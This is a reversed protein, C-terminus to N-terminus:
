VNADGTNADGDAADRDYAFREAQLRFMAAYEGAAAMLEAHTGSEVVQGGGLVVIRDAHRVTSLRHTVLVTTLGATLELFRDFLEAEARVDLNASPEDLVLVSAGTRAAYLARALAIRQWQGGSLDAGRRYGRSLVTDWGYPLRGIVAAAAASEAASLVPPDLARDYAVNDLASAEYRLFNQAIVAIQARWSEPDIERLDCGDVTISGATPDYLRSLLKLLTSKGAGNPGVIAVSEGAILDLDLGALIPRDTGPYGFGVQQFRIIRPAGSLLRGGPLRGVEATRAALRQLHPLSAAGQRVWWLDMTAYGLVGIAGAAQLYVAVAGAGVEGHVGALAIAGLVVVDAAGLAALTWLVPGRRMRRARWIHALFELRYRRTRATLLEVLGFLRIEKAAAPDMSLDHYYDARRDIRVYEERARILSEDTSMWAHTLLTSAILPIPAWWAFGALLVAGGLAGVVATTARGFEGVIRTMPALDWEIQAGQRIQDAVRPDELHAIGPPGLTADLVQLSLRHAVRSGIDTAAADRVPSLVLAAAFLAGILMLIPLVRGSHAATIARGSLLTIAPALLGDTVALVLLLTFRGRATTWIAAILLRFSSM